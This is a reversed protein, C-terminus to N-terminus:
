LSESHCFIASIRHALDSERKGAKGDGTARPREAEDLGDGKELREAYAAAGQLSLDNPLSWAM